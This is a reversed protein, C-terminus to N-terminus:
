FFGLGLGNLNPYIFIKGKNKEKLNQIFPAKAIGQITKVIMKSYRNKSFDRSKYILNIRQKLFKICHRFIYPLIDKIEQHTVFDKGHVIAWGKALDIIQKLCRASVHIHQDLSKIM